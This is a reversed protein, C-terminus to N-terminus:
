AGGKDPGERLSNGRGPCSPAMESIHLARWPRGEAQFAQAEQGAKGVRGRGGGEKRLDQDKAERIELSLNM